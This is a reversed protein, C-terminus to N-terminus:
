KFDIKKGERMWKDTAFQNESRGKPIPFIPFILNRNIAYYPINM